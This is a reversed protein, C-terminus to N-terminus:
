FLKNSKTFIELFKRIHKLTNKILCIKMLIKLWEDIIELFIELMGM